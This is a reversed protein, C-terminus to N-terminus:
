PFELHLTNRRSLTVELHNQLVCIHHCNPTIMVFHPLPLHGHSINIIHQTQKLTSFTTNLVPSRCNDVLHGFIISVWLVAPCSNTIVLEALQGLFIDPGSEDLMLQTDFPWLLSIVSTVRLVVTPGQYGSIKSVASVLTWRWICGPLFPWFGM